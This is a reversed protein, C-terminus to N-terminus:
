ATLSNNFPNKGALADREATRIDKMANQPARPCSQTTSCFVPRHGQRTLKVHRRKTLQAEWGRKVAEEVVKSIDPNVGKLIAVTM